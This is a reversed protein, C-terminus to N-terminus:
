ACHVLLIVLKTVWIDNSIKQARKIAKQIGLEEYSGIKIRVSNKGKPRYQYFFTKSTSPYKYIGLVLGTVGDHSIWQDKDLHKLKKIYSDTLKM